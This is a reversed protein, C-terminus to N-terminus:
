FKLGIGGSLTNIWGDSYFKNSVWLMEYELNLFVKENVFYMLGTGGGAVIGFDHDTYNTSTETTSMKTYQGGFAGKLYAKLKDKGFLYKPSFYFPTSTAIYKRTGSTGSSGTLHVYDFSIGLTFHVDMPNIEYCGGIKYGTGKSAADSLNASAYGGSLTLFVDQSFVSVSALFFLILITAKKM